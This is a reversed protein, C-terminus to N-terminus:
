ASRPAAAWIGFLVQAVTWDSCYSPGRVQDADLPQVLSVLLHDSHRLAAIWIRPDSEM